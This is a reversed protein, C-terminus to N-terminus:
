RRARCVGRGGPFANFVDGVKSAPLVLEAARRCDIVESTLIARGVRQCSTGCERAADVVGGAARVAQSLDLDACGVSVRAALNCSFNAPPLRGRQSSTGDDLSV